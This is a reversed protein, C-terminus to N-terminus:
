SKLLRALILMTHLHKEFSHCEPVSTSITSNFWVDTDEAVRQFSSSCCNGSAVKHTFYWPKEPLTQYFRGAPQQTVTSVICLWLWIVARPWLLSHWGRDDSPFSYSCTWTCLHNTLLSFSCSFLCSSGVSDSWWPFAYLCLPFVTSVFGM